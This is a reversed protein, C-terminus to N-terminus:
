HSNMLPSITLVKFYCKGQENKLVKAKILFQKGVDKIPDLSNVPLSYFCLNNTVWCVDSRTIPPPGCDKPCKWGKYTAQVKVTKGLYSSCFDKSTEKFSFKDTCSFFLLPIAILLAKNIFGM